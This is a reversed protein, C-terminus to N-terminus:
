KVKKTYKVSDKVLTGDPLTWVNHLNTNLTVTIDNEGKEFYSDDIHFWESYVRAVKYGNVYLHMHGEGEKESHSTNQPTLTFNEFDVKINVGSKEDEKLNIKVKPLKEMNHVQVQPDHTAKLLIQKEVSESPEIYKLFVFASISFIFILIPLYIEKFEKKM